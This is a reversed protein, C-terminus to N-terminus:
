APGWHYEEPDANAPEVQWVTELPLGLVHAKVVALALGHSVLAVAGAPHRRVIEELAPIVRRQVDPVGEGQPAREELPHARFRELRDGDRQQIEDFLLGEWTGLHIERLRPEEVLPAGTAEALAEATARARRLDSTYIAELPQGRLREAARRAQAQGNPNLPVDTQGQWRGLLNWDTEGHRVLILRTV